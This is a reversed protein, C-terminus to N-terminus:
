EGHSNEHASISMQESIYGEFIGVMYELAANWGAEFENNPKQFRQDMLEKLLKDM